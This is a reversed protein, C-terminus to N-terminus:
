YGNRRSLTLPIERNESGERGEPPRCKRDLGGNVSSHGQASPPARRRLRHPGAMDAGNERREHQQPQADGGRLLGRRPLCQATRTRGHDEEKEELAASGKPHRWNM